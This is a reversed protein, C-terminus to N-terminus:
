PGDYKKNIYKVVEEELWQENGICGNSNGVLLMNGAHYEELYVSLNNYDRDRQSM